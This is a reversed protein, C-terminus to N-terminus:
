TRVPHLVQLTLVADEWSEGGRVEQKADVLVRVRLSVAVTQGKDIAYSLGTRKPSRQRRVQQRVQLKGGLYPADFAIFGFGATLHGAQRTGRRLINM